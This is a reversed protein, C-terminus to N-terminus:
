DGGMRSAHISIILDMQVLHRAVDGGMRSAHISIVHIVARPFPCRDGGMRSAHISIRIVRMDGIADPTAEWGPPTSQFKTSPPISRNFFPRRGDPLRPNFHRTMRLRRRLKCDGGMRSAHISIHQRHFRANGYNTAEWGPPTSQFVMMPSNSQSSVPRRGDPLRPNFDKYHDVTIAPRPRRGDPLRPNFYDDAEMELEAAPRRGDPLRPNFHTNEPEHHESPLDGGM